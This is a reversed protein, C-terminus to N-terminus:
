FAAWEQISSCRTLFCFPNQPKFMLVKQGTFQVCFTSVIDKCNVNIIWKEVTKADCADLLSNSKPKWICNQFACCSTGDEWTWMCASIYRIHAWIVECYQQEQSNSVGLCDCPALKHTFDLIRSTQCQLVHICINWIKWCM